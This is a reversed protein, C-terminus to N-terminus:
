NAKKEGECNMCRHVSVYGHMYLCVDLALQWYISTQPGLESNCELTCKLFVCEIVCAHAIADHGM